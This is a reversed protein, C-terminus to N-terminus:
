AETQRVGHMCDGDPWAYKCTQDMQTQDMTPSRSELRRREAETQILVGGQLEEGARQSGELGIKGGNM